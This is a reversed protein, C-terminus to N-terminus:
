QLGAALEAVRLHPELLCKGARSAERSFSVIAGQLGRGVKSTDMGILAVELFRNGALTTPCSSM